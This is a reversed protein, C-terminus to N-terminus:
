KRQYKEDWLVDGAKPSLFGLQARSAETSRLSYIMREAHMLSACLSVHTVKVRGLALWSMGEM